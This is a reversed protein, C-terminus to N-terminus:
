FAKGFQSISRQRASGQIWGGPSGQAVVRADLREVRVGEVDAGPGGRASTPWAQRRDLAVNRRHSRDGARRRSVIM